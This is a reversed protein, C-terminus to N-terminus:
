SPACGDTHGQLLLGLFSIVIRVLSKVAVIAVAGVIHHGVGFPHSSHTGRRANFDCSLTQSTSSIRSSHGNGGVKEARVVLLAHEVSRGKAVILLVLLVRPKAVGFMRLEEM